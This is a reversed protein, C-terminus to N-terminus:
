HFELKEIDKNRKVENQKIKKKVKDFYDLVETKLYHNM